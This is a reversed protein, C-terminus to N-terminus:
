TVQMKEIEELSRGKTEIILLWIFIVDVACFVSYILFTGSEYKEFLLPFTQTVIFCCSWSIMYIISLATGRIRNPFIESFWVWLVACPGIAFSAVYALVPILVWIPSINQLQFAFGASALSIGMGALGLMLLPKRGFWDITFFATITFLLNIIGVIVSALFASSASEYGFRLFIKPVYYVIANVGTFGTILTFLVCVLMIKRIGPTFLESISGSKKDVTEKIELIEVEANKAGNIKTLIALSDDTRGKKVLWRPSEPIFLLAFFFFGAPPAEVFFMWRWNNPGIDVLLWNSFYSILIGAVITFQNITVLRGRIRAPAIESIYMPSIVCAMGVAVGGIFRAILLEIFTRPIVSLIASVTFFLAGLILIKKRGFRDSLIGAISAGIICGIVLNSVAFG